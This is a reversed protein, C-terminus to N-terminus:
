ASPAPKWAQRYARSVRLKAGSSLTLEAEGRPLSKIAQIHRPNVAHSRHVRLFGCEQVSAHALFDSLTCRDLHQSPPAHLEIYNDAAAVWEVSALPLKFLGGGAAARQPLLWHGPVPQIQQLASLLVSRAAPPKAQAPTEPLAQLQLQRQVQLRQRLRLVTDALREATYPKLLYDVANLDFAQVAHADFATCFACLMGEPLSLALELGSRGPMQIDLLAADPRLAEALAQAEDAHSAEGVVQLGPMEALLRRLKARAPPEDDVILLSLPLPMPPPMDSM